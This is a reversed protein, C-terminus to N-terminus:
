RDHLEVRVKQIKTNERTSARSEDAAGCFTAPGSRDSYFDRLVRHGFCAGFFIDARVRRRDAGGGQYADRRFTTAADRITRGDRAAFNERARLHATLLMQLVGCTPATSFVASARFAAIAFRM